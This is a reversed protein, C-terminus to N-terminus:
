ERIMDRLVESSKLIGDEYAIQYLNRLIEKTSCFQCNSEDALSDLIQETKFDLYDELERETECSECNCEEEDNCENCCDCEEEETDDIVILLMSDIEEIEDDCLCSKLVIVRDSEIPLMEGDNNFPYEKFIENGVRTILCIEDGDEISDEIIFVRSKNFFKMIDDATERDVIVSSYDAEILFNQAFEIFHEYSKIDEM